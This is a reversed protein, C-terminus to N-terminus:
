AGCPEAKLTDVTVFFGQPAKEVQYSYRQRQPRSPVVVSKGSKDVVDLASVDICATVAFAKGVKKSAVPDVVMANGHQVWGKSRYESSRQSGSRSRKRVPLPLWPMSIPSPIRRRGRRAGELLQRDVARRGASGTARADAVQYSDADLEVIRRHSNPEADILDRNPHREGDDCAALAVSCVAALVGAVLWRTRM